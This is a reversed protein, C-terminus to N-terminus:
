NLSKYFLICPIFKSNNNDIMIEDIKTKTYNEDRFLYWQQNQFGKCFNVYKKTKVDISVIGILEYKRPSNKEEILKNLNIREEISFQFDLLKENFNGDNLLFIFYKPSSYIISINEKETIKKCNNCYKMQKKRLEFNLCDFLNVDTKRVKESFELIDLQYTHYNNFSFIKEGCLCNLQKLEFWNFIDSIEQEEWIGRSEANDHTDEYWEEIDFVIHVGKIKIRRIVIDIVWGNNYGTSEKIIFPSIGWDLKEVEKWDVKDNDNYENSYLTFESLGLSQLQKMIRGAIDHAVKENSKIDSKLMEKITEELHKM